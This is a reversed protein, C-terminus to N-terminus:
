GFYDQMLKDFLQQTKELSKQVLVKSKDIQKAISVFSIQLEIPPKIVPMKKFEGM